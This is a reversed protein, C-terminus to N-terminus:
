TEGLAASVADPISATFRVAHRLADAGASSSAESLASDVLRHWYEGLLVFPRPATENKVVSEAMWLLELM